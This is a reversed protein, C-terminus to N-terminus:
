SYLHSVHATITRIHLCKGHIHRGPEFGSASQRAGIPLTLFPTPIQLGSRRSPISVKVGDVVVQLLKGAGGPPVRLKLNVMRVQTNVITDARSDAM